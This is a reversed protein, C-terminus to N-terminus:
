KKRCKFYKVQIGSERVANMGYLADVRDKREKYVEERGGSYKQYKPCESHCGITRDTCNKCPSKNM